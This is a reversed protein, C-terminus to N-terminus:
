IYQMQICRLMREVDKITGCHRELGNPHNMELLSADRGEGNLNSVEFSKQNKKM